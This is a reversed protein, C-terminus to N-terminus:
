LRVQLHEHETVSKVINELATLKKECDQKMDELRYLDGRVLAYLKTDNIGASKFSGKETKVMLNKQKAIAIDYLRVLRRLEDLKDISGSSM